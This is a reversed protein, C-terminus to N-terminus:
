GGGEKRISEIFTKDIKLDILNIKELVNKITKEENFVPVLISLKM